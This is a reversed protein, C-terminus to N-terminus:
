LTYIFDPHDNGLRRKEAEEEDKSELPQRQAREREKRKNQTMLWVRNGVTIVCIGVSFALNVTTGKKFRPPDDFIWTALIGGLISMVSGYGIATSRKYYPQVNNLIWAASASAATFVGIMQLFISGYLVSTNSSTLFIAYGTVALIESLLLSYGREGWRDAFIAICVSVVFTAAYPPVSMLQTRVPSYGMSFLITPLFYALGAHLTTNLFGIIAGVLAQPLFSSYSTLGLLVFSTAAYFERSTNQICRLSSEV